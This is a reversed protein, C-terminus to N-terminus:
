FVKYQFLYGARGAKKEIMGRFKSFDFTYQYQKGFLNSQEEIRGERPGLGTKYSESKFGFGASLDGGASLGFGTEKLAESFVVEKKGDDILIRASYVLKKKNLFAKREAITKTVVLAGDKEFIEASISVAINKIEESLSM